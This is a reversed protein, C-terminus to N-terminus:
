AERKRQGGRALERVLSHVLERGRRAIGVLELPVSLLRELRPMIRSSLPGQMPVPDTLPMAALTQLPVDFRPRGQQLEAMTSVMEQGIAELQDADFLREAAAFVRAREEDVHRQVEGMLDAIRERFSDREVPTAMCLALKRKIDLHEHLAHELLDRTPGAAAKIAPYFHREELTAHIALLDALDDFMKRRAEARGEGRALRGGLEDFDRHQTDLLEIANM